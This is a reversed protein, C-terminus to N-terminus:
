KGKRKAIGQKELLSRMQAADPQSPDLDISRRLHELGRDPQSLFQYYILGLNHHVLPDAEHLRLASEYAEAAHAYQGLGLWVTALQRLRGIELRGSKNAFSELLELSEKYRSLSVLAGAMNIAAAANNPYIRIADQYEQLAAGFNGELNLIDGMITHSKASEPATRLAAEFLTRDSKWDVNRICTKVGWSSVLLVLFVSWARQASHSFRGETMAQADFLLAALAWCFAASPLYLFREAMTAGIPIILNSVASLSVMFFVLSLLYVPKRRAYWLASFGLTALLVLSLLFVPSTIQGIIPIVHYSYDASLKFPWILLWIYRAVVHIATLIRTQAAVFALPNEVYTTQQLVSAAAAGVANQRIWLYALSVLVLCWLRYDFLVSRLRGLIGKGASYYWSFLMWLGVLVVANEKSLLGAAYLALAGSFSLWSDRLGKQRDGILLILGGCVAVAAMIEARGVVNAVAEVHVPHAAFLLAAYFSAGDSHLVERGLRFVLLVALLHLLLNVAHFGLPESGLVARNLAFSLTTLPRYLSNEASLRYGGSMIDGINSLSAIRPDEQIVVRDDLTFGNGLTNLNLLIVLITLIWGYPMPRSGHQKLAPKKKRTARM